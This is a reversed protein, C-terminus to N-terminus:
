ELSRLELDQFKDIILDAEKLTEKLHSTTIGITFAGSLKAATIGSISDEIVISKEPLVNLKKMATIFIDPAPKSKKVDDACIITEFEDRLNIENLSFNIKELTGSSAVAIKMRLKKADEIVKQVGSVPKLNSGAIRYYVEEKKRSLEELLRPNHELNNMELYYKATYIGNKGLIADYNTGIDINYEEKMLVNWAGCSYKESDVIVGDCDFILAEFRM